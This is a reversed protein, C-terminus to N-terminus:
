LVIKELDVGMKEAHKPEYVRTVLSGDAQDSATELEIHTFNNLWCLVNMLRRVTLTM